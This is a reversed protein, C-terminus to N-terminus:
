ARRTLTGNSSPQRRGARRLESPTATARRWRSSRSTTRVRRGADLRQPPRARPQLQRVRRHSLDPFTAFGAVATGPEVAAIRSREHDAHDHRQLVLDASPAPRGPTSRRSRTVHHDDHPRPAISRRRGRRIQRSASRPARRSRRRLAAQVQRRATTTLQNGNVRASGTAPRAPSTTRSSAGDVRGPRRDRWRVADAARAITSSPPRLAPLALNRLELVRATRALTAGSAVTGTLGSRRDSSRRDRDPDDVNASGLQQTGTTNTLTITYDGDTSAPRGPREVDM